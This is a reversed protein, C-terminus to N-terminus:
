KLAEKIENFAANIRDTHWGRDALWERVVSRYNRATGGKRAVPMAVSNPPEVMLLCVTRGDTSLGLDEVDFVERQPAQFDRDLIAEEPDTKNIRSRMKDMMFFWVWRRISTAYPDQIPQGGNTTGSVFEAHGKAFALGAQGSLEDLDGGYRRHFKHVQDWMLDQVLAFAENVDEPVESPAMSAAPYHPKRGKTTKPKPETTTVSM